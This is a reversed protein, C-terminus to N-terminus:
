NNQLSVGLVEGAENHSVTCKKSRGALTFSKSLLAALESHHDKMMRARLGILDNVILFSKAFHTDALEVSRYEYYFQLCFRLLHPLAVALIGIVNNYDSPPTSQHAGHRELESM